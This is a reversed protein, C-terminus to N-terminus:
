AWIAPSGGSPPSNAAKAPRSPYPRSPVQRRSITLGVEEVAAM